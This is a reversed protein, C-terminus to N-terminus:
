RTDLRTAGDDRTGRGRSRVREVIVDTVLLVVALLGVVHVADFRAPWDLGAPYSHRGQQVFVYLGTAALAAPAGIALLWRTRPVLLVALAAGGALLGVWPEVLLGSIVAVTLATAVVRSRSPTTGAAVLPSVAEPADDVDTSQVRSRGRLALLACGLLTLGSIVIGVWVIRQPEWTFTIELNRQDPEIRWGNSMGDVLEPPGLDRGNVEAHWGRNLSQGLVLWFPEDADRIRAEIKTRGNHVVDVGPRSGPDSALADILARRGDIAGGGVASALVVGDVDIGSVAGSTARLEHRGRELRLSSTENTADCREIEFSQHASTSDIDGVLRVAVPTGDIELLDSRCTAPVASTLPARQVGPIGLEAVAVPLAAELGSDYDITAVARVAEIVVRVRDGTLPPFSVRALETAGMRDRDSDEVAPVDVTRTEGGAEIRLRTPVSHRGDAVLRLALHDFMLPRTLQLDIWEGAPSVEADTVWATTTDGDIAASARARASTRLHGSARATIGGAAADPIGLVQDLVDDPAAPSLRATGAIGFERAVPVLFSRELTAEEETVNPASLVSRLRTMEYLLPNKVTRAARMDVLDTPMRVVERVRVPDGEADDLRIEAFGVASDHQYSDQDGASDALVAIDLQAFRRRGFAVTQGEATRSAPGLDVGVPQGVPRGKGDHFRLEVRTLHRDRRGTLPQVLNVHDTTIARALRIDIWEGPVPGYAGVKWATKPDGDLARAPRNSPVFRTATGYGSASVQAGRQEMVTFSNEGADPFVDLRQDQEDEVLPRENPRETYGLDDHESWHQARARNTDTVILV